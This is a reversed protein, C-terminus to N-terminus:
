ERDKCIPCVFEEEPIEEEYWFVNSCDECRHEHTLKKNFETKEEKDWQEENHMRKCNDCMDGSKFNNSLTIGCTSCFNTDALDFQRFVVEGKELLIEEFSQIIYNDFAYTRSDTYLDIYGDDGPCANICLVPADTLAFSGSGDYWGNGLHRSEELMDSLHFRGDHEEYFDKYAEKDIVKILLSLPQEILEIM